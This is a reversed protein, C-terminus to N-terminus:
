LAGAKAEGKKKVLPSLIGELFVVDQHNSDHKRRIAESHLAEYFVSGPITKYFISCWWLHRGFNSNWQLCFSSKIRWELLKLSLYILLLWFVPFIHLIM